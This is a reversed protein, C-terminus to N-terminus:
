ALFAVLAIGSHCSSHLGTWFGIREVGVADNGSGRSHGQFDGDLSRSVECKKM